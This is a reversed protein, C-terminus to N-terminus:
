LEDDDFVDVIFNSKNFRDPLMKKKRKRKVKSEALLEKLQRSQAKLAEKMIREDPTAGMNKEGTEQKKSGSIKEFMGKKKKKEKEEEIIDVGEVLQRAKREREFQQKKGVAPVLSPAQEYLIEEIEPTILGRLEPSKLAERQQGSLTPLEVEKPESPIFLGKAKKKEEKTAPVLNGKSDQKKGAVLIKGETIGKILKEVGGQRMIIDEKKKKTDLARPSRVETKGQREPQKVKKPEIFDLLEGKKMMLEVEKDTLIKIAGFNRRPGSGAAARAQM